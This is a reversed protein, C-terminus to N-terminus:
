GHCPCYWFGIVVLLIIVFIKLVIYTCRFGSQIIKLKVGVTLIKQIQYGSHKHHNAIKFTSNKEAAYAKFQAEILKVPNYHSHLKYSCWKTIMNGQLTNLGFKKLKQKNFKVGCVEATFIRANQFFGTQKTRWSICIKFLNSVSFVIKHVQSLIVSYSSGPGGSNGSLRNFSMIEKM